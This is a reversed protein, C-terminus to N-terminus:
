VFAVADDGVVQAEELREIAGHLTLGPPLAVLRHYVGWSRDTDLLALCEVGICLCLAYEYLCSAAALGRFPRAVGCAVISCDRHRFRTLAGYRKLVFMDARKCTDHSSSSM